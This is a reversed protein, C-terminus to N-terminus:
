NEIEEKALSLVKLCYNIGQGRGQKYSTQHLSCLVKRIEDAKWSNSKYENEISNTIYNIEIFARDKDM